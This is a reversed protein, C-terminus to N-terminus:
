KQWDLIAQREQINKAKEIREQEERQEKKKLDLQWLKAYLQEEQIQKDLKARKEM